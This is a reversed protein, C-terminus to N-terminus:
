GNGARSGLAQLIAALLESYKAPKQFLAVAGAALAEERYRAADSGTIMIVPISGLEPFRKLWQMVTFGSWEMHGEAPFNIDLIIVDVKATEAMGAAKSANPTTSVAFGEAKLKMEFAKLVVPNDDVVLIGRPTKGVLTKHITEPVPENEPLFAQKEKALSKKPYAGQKQEKLLQLAISM